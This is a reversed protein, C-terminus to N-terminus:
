SKTQLSTHVHWNIQPIEALNFFLITWLFTFLITALYIKSQQIYTVFGYYWSLIRNLRYCSYYSTANLYQSFFICFCLIFKNKIRLFMRWAPWERRHKHKHRNKSKSSIYGMIPFSGIKLFFIEIPM